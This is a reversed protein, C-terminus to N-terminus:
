GAMEDTSAGTEHGTKRNQSLKKFSQLYPDIQQSDMTRLIPNKSFAWAVAFADDISTDVLVAIAQSTRSQEYTIESTRQDRDSNYDYVILALM